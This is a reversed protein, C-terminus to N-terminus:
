KTVLARRKAAHFMKQVLSINVPKTGDTKPFLWDVPRTTQWHLRLIDLLLPPLLTYRDKGGKGNAVRIMMRQSDIDNVKLCCAETVRLGAAYITKLLARHRLILFSTDPRKLAIHFFFRLACAAQNTSSWAWKREEILRLLYKQM